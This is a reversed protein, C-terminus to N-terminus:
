GAIDSIKISLKTNGLFNRNVANLPRVLDLLNCIQKIGVDFRGNLLTISNMEMYRLNMVDNESVPKGVNM